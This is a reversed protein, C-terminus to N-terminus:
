ARRAKAAFNPTRTGRAKPKRRSRCRWRSPFQESERPETSGGRTRLRSTRTGTRPQPPLAAPSLTHRDRSLFFASYTHNILTTHHDILICFIETHRARDSFPLVRDAIMPSDVKRVEEQYEEEWWGPEGVWVRQRGLWRAHSSPAARLAPAGTLSGTM